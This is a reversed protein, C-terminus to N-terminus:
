GLGTAGLSETFISRVTRGWSDLARGVLGPLDQHSRTMLELNTYIAGTYITWVRFNVINNLFCEGQVNQM